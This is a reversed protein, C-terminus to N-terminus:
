GLDDEYSSADQSAETGIQVTEIKLGSGIELLKTRALDTDRFDLAQLVEDVLAITRTLPLDVRTYALPIDLSSLATVIADHDTISIEQRLGDLKAQVSNAPNVDGVVRVESHILVLTSESDTEDVLESTLSLSSANVTAQRSAPKIRTLLSQAVVVGNRAADANDNAIETLAAQLNSLAGRGYAANIAWQEPPKRDVIVRVNDTTETHKGSTRSILASSGIMAASVAIGMALAAILRKHHKTV